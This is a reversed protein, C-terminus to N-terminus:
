SSRALVISVPCHESKSTSHMTAAYMDKAQFIGFIKPLQLYFFNSAFSNHDWHGATSQTLSQNFVTFRTVLNQSRGLANIRIQSQKADAKGGGNVARTPSVRPLTSWNSEACMRRASSKSM